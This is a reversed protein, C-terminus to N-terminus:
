FRIIYNEKSLKPDLFVIGIFFLDITLSAKNSNTIYKWANEMGSSWHIDDFIIITKNHSHNTIIDFHEKTAQEQHNGDVFVFDFKEFSSIEKKFTDKFDGRIIEINNTKLFKFNESAIKASENCGEFTKINSDPNASSLYLTSIGFSTGLEFINKPKFYKVIRYILNGYKKSKASNKAIDRIKREKKANILSGAGFDTIKIYNNNKNLRRRLNEINQNIDSSTKKYIVNTVFDYVFPSHILYENRSKVLYILYRLILQLNKMM